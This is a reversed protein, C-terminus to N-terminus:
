YGKVIADYMAWFNEIPTDLQVNHTPGLILGGSKGITRVRKHVEKSVEGPSRFPLTWQEDISGWFCLKKGYKKKLLAPDM